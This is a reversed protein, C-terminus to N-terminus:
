SKSRFVQPKLQCKLTLSKCVNRNIQRLGVQEKNFTTGGLFQFGATTVAHHM